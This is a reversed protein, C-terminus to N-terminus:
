RPRSLALKYVSSHGAAKAQQTHYNAMERCAGRLIAQEAMEESTKPTKDDDMYVPVSVLTIGSVVTKQAMKVRTKWWEMFAPDKTKAQIKAKQEEARALLALQRQNRSRAVSTANLGSQLKNVVSVLIETDEPTLQDLQPLLTEAIKKLTTLEKM